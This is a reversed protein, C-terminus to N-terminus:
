NCFLSYKLIKNKLSYKKLKYSHKHMFKYFINVADKCFFYDRYEGNLLNFTDNKCTVTLGYPEITFVYNKDTIYLTYEYVRVYDGFILSQSQNHQYVDYAKYVKNNHNTSIYKWCEKFKKYNLLFNLKAYMYNEADHSNSLDYYNDFFNEIYNPLRNM